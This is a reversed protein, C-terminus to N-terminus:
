EYLQGKIKRLQAIKQEQNSRIEQRDSKLYQLAEPFCVKVCSPDGNCLDCKMAVGDSIFIGEYPCVQVCEGCATCTDEDVKFLLNEGDYNIADVPCAEVCPHEDCQVCLLPIYKGQVEDRLVAVRSGKSGCNGAYKISCADICLECGTCKSIDVLLAKMEGEFLIM